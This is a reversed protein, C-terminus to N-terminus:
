LIPKKNWHRLFDNESKLISVVNGTKSHTSIHIISHTKQNAEPSSSEPHEGMIETALLFVQVSGHLSSVWCWEEPTEVIGEVNVYTCPLEHFYYIIAKRKRNARVTRDCNIRPHTGSFRAYNLVIKGM